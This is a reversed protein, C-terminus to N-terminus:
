SGSNWGVWRRPTRRRTIGGGFSLPETGASSLPVRFTYDVLKATALGKTNMMVQHSDIGEIGQVLSPAVLRTGTSANWVGFGIAVMAAATACLSIKRM